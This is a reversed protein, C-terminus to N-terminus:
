QLGLWRKWWSREREARLRALEAEAATAHAQHAESRKREEALEYRAAEREALLKGRQERLDANEAALRQREAREETLAAALTDLAVSFPAPTDTAPPQSPITTPPPVDEPRPWLVRIIEGQPRAEREAQLKGDRIMRRVTSQSTKLRSAAEAVSIPEYRDNPIHVARPHYCVHFSGPQSDRAKAGGIEPTRSLDSIRNYTRSPLFLFPIDALWAGPGSPGAPNSGAFGHLYGM